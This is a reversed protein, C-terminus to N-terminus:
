VSDPSKQTVNQAYDFIDITLQSILNFVAHHHPDYKIKLFDISIKWNFDLNGIVHVNYSFTKIFRVDSTYVCTLNCYFRHFVAM